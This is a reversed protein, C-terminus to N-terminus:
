GNSLSAHGGVQLVPLGIHSLMRRHASDARGESTTLLMSTLRLHSHNTSVLLMQFINPGNAVALRRVGCQWEGPTAVTARRRHMSTWLLLSLAHCLPGSHGWLIPGFIPKLSLTLSISNHIILSSSTPRQMIGTQRRRHGSQLSWTSWLQDLRQTVVARVATGRNDVASERYRYM